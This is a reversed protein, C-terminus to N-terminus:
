PLALRTLFWHVAEAADGCVADPTGDAGPDAREEERGYGTRVLVGRGGAARGTAADLRKDGIMVSHELDLVLDEAARRLLGVRPKRCACDAEPRHPCFYIADPEADRARLLVRLRAMAEHVRALPFLGRGVGSQNSVVVVPLGAARAERIAAAAGPLLELDAPDALYGIERVLTGDRDLFVFPRM